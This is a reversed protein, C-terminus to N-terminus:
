YGGSTGEGLAPWRGPTLLSSDASILRSFRSFASSRQALSIRLAADAKKAASGPQGCRVEHPEDVAVPGPEPGPGMQRTSVWRPQGIAGDV